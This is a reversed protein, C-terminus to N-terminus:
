SVVHVSAGEDAGGGATAGGEVPMTSAVGGGFFRPRGFLVGAGSTGFSASPSSSGISRSM